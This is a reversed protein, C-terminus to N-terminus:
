TDGTLGLELPFIHAYIFGGFTIMWNRTPDTMDRWEEYQARQERERRLRAGISGMVQGQFTRGVKTENSQRAPKNPRQPEIETAYSRYFSAPLRSARCSATTPTRLSGLAARQARLQLSAMVIHLQLPHAPLPDFTLRLLFLLTWTTSSTIPVAPAHRSLSHSTATSSLLQLARCHFNSLVSNSYRVVLRCGGLGM